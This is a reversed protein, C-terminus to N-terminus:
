AKAKGLTALRAIDAKQEEESWRGFLQYHTESQGPAPGGDGKDALSLHGQEVEQEEQEDCEQEDDEMGPYGKAGEVILVNDGVVELCGVAQWRDLEELVVAEDVGARRSIDRISIPAQNSAVPGSRGKSNMPVVNQAQSSALAEDGALSSDDGSNLYKAYESLVGPRFVDEASVMGGDGTEKAREAIAKLLGPQKRAWAIADPFRVDNAGLTKQGRPSPIDAPAKEDERVKEPCDTESMPCVKLHTDTDTRFYVSQADSMDSLTRVHGSIDSPITEHGSQEPTPNYAGGSLREMRAANVLLRDAPRLPFYVNDRVELLGREVLDARARYFAKEKASDTAATSLSFYEVKWVDLHVGAGKGDVTRVGHEKAAALLSDLGTQQGRTLPKEGAARVERREIVCSTATDGYFDEFPLEVQVRALCEDRGQPLDKQKKVKLALEQEQETGSGVPVLCLATDVAGHLASAGRLTEPDHKPTHHVLVVACGNLRARLEDAAAIFVSMDSNSNEDGDSCRALTDFFVAVPTKGNLKQEVREMVADVLADRQEARPLTVAHPVYYFPISKYSVGAAAREMDWAELRKVVEGAGEAGVYISPGEKTDRGIFAQGSAISLAMDLCFFTKAGGPPGYIVSLSDPMLLGRVLHERPTYTLESGHLLTVSFGRGPEKAREEKRHEEQARQWCDRFLEKASELGREVFLDNWDYGKPSGEPLEVVTFGAPRCDAGAKKGAHDFDPCVVIDRGRYRDRLPEAVELLNQSGFCSVTPWGSLEHLSAATAYGESVLLPGDANMDGCPSFTGSKKGLHMKQRGPEKSLDIREVGILAGDVDLAPILLVDGSVRLGDGSIGKAALYPHNIVPAASNWLRQAALRKDDQATDQKTQKGEANRIISDFDPGREEAHKYPDPINLERLLDSLKGSGGGFDCYTRKELNIHCSPTREDRVACLYEGNQQWRGGPFNDELWERTYPSNM